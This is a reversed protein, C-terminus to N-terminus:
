LRNERFRSPPPPRVCRLAKPLDRRVLDEWLPTPRRQVVASDRGTPLCAGSPTNFPVPMSIDWTGSKLDGCQQLQTAFPHCFSKITATCSPADVGVKFVDALDHDLHEIEM